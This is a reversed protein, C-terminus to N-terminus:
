QLDPDIFFSSGNQCGTSELYLWRRRSFNPKVEQMFLNNPTINFGNLSGNEDSGSARTALRGHKALGFRKVLSSAYLSIAMSSASSSTFNSCACDM